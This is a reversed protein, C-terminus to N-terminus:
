FCFFIEFTNSVPEVSVQMFHLPLRAALDDAKQGFYEAALAVSLMSDCMVNPDNHISERAYAFEGPHFSIYRNGIEEWYTTPSVIHARQLCPLESFTPLSILVIFIQDLSLTFTRFWLNKVPPGHFPDQPDTSTGFTFNIDCIAEKILIFPDM